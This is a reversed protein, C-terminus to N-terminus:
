NEWQCLNYVSALRRISAANNACLIVGTEPSNTGCITVDCGYIPHYTSDATALPKGDLSALCEQLIQCVDTPDMALIYNSDCDLKCEIFRRWGHTVFTFTNM